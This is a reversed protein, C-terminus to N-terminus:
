MNNYMTVYVCMCVCVGVFVCVYAHSWKGKGHTMLWCVIRCWVRWWAAGIHESGAYFSLAGRSM